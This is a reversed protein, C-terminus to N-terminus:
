KGMTSNLRGEKINERKGSGVKENQLEDKLLQM